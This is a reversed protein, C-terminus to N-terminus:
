DNLYCFIPIKLEFQIKLVDLYDSIRIVNYVVKENWQENM